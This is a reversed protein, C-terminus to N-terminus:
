MFDSRLPKKQICQFSLISRSVIEAYQKPPEEMGGRIWRHLLSLFGGASYDVFYELDLGEKLESDGIRERVVDISVQSVRNYLLYDLKHYHLLLLFEKYRYWFTFYDEAIQRIDYEQLVTSGKRYEQCLRDLYFILVDEKCDYLRYFTRRAVDARASIELVSIQTYRKEKMLTFLANEIMQRSQEKQKQHGDMKQMGKRILHCLNWTNYCMGRLGQNQIMILISYFRFLCLQLM